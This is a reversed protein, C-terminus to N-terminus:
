CDFASPNGCVVTFIQLILKAKYFLTRQKLTKFAKTFVNMRGQKWEWDWLGEKGKDGVKKNKRESEKEKEDLVDGMEREREREREWKRKKGGKERGSNKLSYM